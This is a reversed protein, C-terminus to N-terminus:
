DRLLRNIGAALDGNEYCKKAYTGVVAVDVGATKLLAINNENVGGDVIIIARPNLRRIQTIQALAAPQFTQGSQGCKVTMVIMYQATRILSENGRTTGGLDLVLGRQKVDLAHLNATLSHDKGCDKVDFSVSRFGTVSPAPEQMLHLDIEIQDTYNQVLQFVAPNAQFYDFHLCVKAQQKQNLERSVRIIEEIYQTLRVKEVALYPEISVAIQM